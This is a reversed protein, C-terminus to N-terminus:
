RPATNTDGVIIDPDASQRACIRLGDEESGDCYSGLCLSCLCSASTSDSRLSQALWRERIWCHGSGTDAFCFGKTHAKAGKLGAFCM